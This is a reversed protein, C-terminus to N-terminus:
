VRSREVVLRDVPDPVEDARWLASRFYGFRHWSGSLNAFFTTRPDASPGASHAWLAEEPRALDCIFRSTAGVFAYLRGRFPIVRSPNVTYEDGPFEAELAVFPRGLGPVLGLPTGLWVRHVAGWRWRAPDPGQAAELQGVVAAFAARVLDDVGERAATELDARLPDTPDLLLAHLRPLARRGNAFRVGLRPGLLPAFVRPPLERQLIGFIAAGASDTDFVADWDRLVEIARAALATWESRVATLVGVLADRLAPVHAGVVDRQLAAFTETTHGDEAALVSEIRSTRYRPECHTTTFVIAHAPDTSSNATAVFGCSPALHKPMEEFPVWGEWQAGPDDADRVFLGDRRRRPTRGYLEWGIHGARHGYVHNFDFPGEHMEALARRHEDVTRSSALAVCGEFWRALDSPVLRVALEVGDHHRWGPYLIGHECSEWAITVHRGVRAPLREEHRTIAGTGGATRYRTPDQTVRHVRYLDWADRFGTTCGWALAGNHGLGFVPCGPFVGGQVRVGPGDLHVHHWFTPLPIFPVHPDNAVLPAGSASRAPGVAWNNSGGGTEHIPLEPEPVDGRARYSTPVSDWPADPYLRRAVEDGLRGRVADFTLENEFPTLSIIFACARAVLLCDAPRWPRVPGLLLYEPPYVGRMAALAANVGNAFAELLAAASPSLRTVDRESQAEFGLPRVFGDVDAMRRGGLLPDRKPAALNGILGCLRGAGCHRLVDMFFFRDTAQLWGLATYLDRADDAYVHPIGRADRVVELRGHPRPLNAAVLAPKSRPVPRAWRTALLRALMAGRRKRPLPPAPM